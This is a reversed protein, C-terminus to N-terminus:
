AHVRTTNQGMPFVKGDRGSMIFEHFHHFSKGNKFTKFNTPDVNPHWQLPPSSLHQHSLQITSFGWKISAEVTECCLCVVVPMACDRSSRSKCQLLWKSLSVHTYAEYFFWFILRAHDINFGICKWKCEFNFGEWGKWVSRIWSFSSIEERKQLNQFGHPRCEPAM